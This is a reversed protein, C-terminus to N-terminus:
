PPLPPYRSITMLVFYALLALSKELRRFQYEGVGEVAHLRTHAGREDPPPVSAQPLPTPPTGIGVIPCVSHHEKLDHAESLGNKANLVQGVNLYLM